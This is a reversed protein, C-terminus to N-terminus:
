GGFRDRIFAELLKVSDAPTDVFEVGMDFQPPAEESEAEVQSCHVIRALSRFKVGDDLEVAVDCRTERDLHSESRALMGSLSLRRIEFRDAATLSVSQNDAFKFRGFLRKGPDQQYPDNLNLIVNNRLFDLFPAAADTLLGEFAIGAEYLPEVEDHETRRTSRLTCWRVTGKLRQTEGETALSIDYSRHVVLPATTRVCMGAPSINVVEAGFNFAVRGDLNEVDFRPNRRADDGKADRAM